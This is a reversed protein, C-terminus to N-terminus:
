LKKIESIRARKEDKTLNKFNRDFDPYTQVPEVHHVLIHKNTKQDVGSYEPTPDLSRYKTHPPLVVEDENTHTYHAINVVPIHSHKDSDYHIALVHHFQRNQAAEKEKPDKISDMDKNAHSKAMTLSPTASTIGMVDTVQDKGDKRFQVEHRMGSYVVAKGDINLNKKPDFLNHVAHSVDNSTTDSYSNTNPLVGGNKRISRNFSKAGKSISICCRKADALEKGSFENVIKDPFTKPRQSNEVKELLYEKLRLM